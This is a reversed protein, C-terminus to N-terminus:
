LEVGSQLVTTLFGTIDDKAQLLVPEIRSDIGRTMRNLKKYLEWHKEDFTEKIVAIDIDSNEHFTGTALSGYLMIKCPSLEECVLSAYKKANELATTQDMSM